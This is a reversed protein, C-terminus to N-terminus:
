DGRKTKAKTPLKKPPQLKINLNALIQAARVPPQAIITLQEVSEDQTVINLLHVRNLEAIIDTITEGPMKNEALKRSVMYALM